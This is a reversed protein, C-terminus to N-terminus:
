SCRTTIRCATVKGTWSPTRCASGVLTRPVTGSWDPLLHDVRGPPRPCGRHTSGPRDHRHVGRLPNGCTGLWGRQPLHVLPMVGPVGTCLTGRGHAGCRGLCSGRVPSGRSSTCPIGVQDQAAPGAQELVAPRGISSCDCHSSRAARRKDEGDHDVGDITRIVGLHAALAAGDPFWASRTLNM